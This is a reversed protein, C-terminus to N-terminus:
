IQRKDNAITLIPLKMNGTSRAGQVSMRTVDWKVGFQLVTFGPNNPMTVPVTVMYHNKILQDLEISINGIIIDGSNDAFQQADAGDTVEPTNGGAEALASVAEAGGALVLTTCVLFVAM